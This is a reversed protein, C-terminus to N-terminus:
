GPFSARIPPLARAWTSLPVGGPCVTRIPGTFRISNATTQSHEAAVAPVGFLNAVQELFMLGKGGGGVQCGHFEVCASPNFYARLPRLAAVVDPMSLSLLSIGSRASVDRVAADESATVNAQARVFGHLSPVPQRRLTDYLVHVGTGYGIVQTGPNGHGHFRLLVLSRPTVGSSAISPVVWGVANSGGGFLIPQSGASELATRSEHLIPDFVDVIDRIRLPMHAILRNWTSLGIDGDDRLNARRQFAIVALETQRGYDGDVSLPPHGDLRANLLLQAAAVMPLKDGRKLLIM